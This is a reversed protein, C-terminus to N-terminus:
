DRLIQTPTSALRLLQATLWNSIRGHLAARGHHTGQEPPM